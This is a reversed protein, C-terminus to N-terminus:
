ISGYTEVLLRFLDKRASDFSRSVDGPEGLAFIKITIGSCVGMMGVCLMVIRKVGVGLISSFRALIEGGLDVAELSCRNEPCKVPPIDSSIITLGNDFVVSAWYGDSYKIISLASSISGSSQEM